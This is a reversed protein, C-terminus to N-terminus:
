TLQEFTTLLAESAQALTSRGPAQGVDGAGAQMLQWQGKPEAPARRIDPSSLPLNNLYHIAKDFDARTSDMLVVSRQALAPHCLAGLLAGKAYRQSLMRQRGALNVALTDLNVQQAISFNIALMGFDLLVFAAIALTLRLNIKGLNM